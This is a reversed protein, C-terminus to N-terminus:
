WTSKLGCASSVICVVANQRQPKRYNRQSLCTVNGECVGGSITINDVVSTVNIENDSPFSCQFPAVASESLNSHIARITNAVRPVTASVGELCGRSKAQFPLLGM